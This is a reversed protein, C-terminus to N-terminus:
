GPNTSSKTKLGWLLSAPFLVMTPVISQLAGMVKRSVAYCQAEYFGIIGVCYIAFSAGFLLLYIFPLKRVAAKSANLALLLGMNLALFWVMFFVTVVWKISSLERQNFGFLWTVTGHNHYYDFPANVRVLELSRHKQEPTSEYFGPITRGQDIIYNISIKLKEQYFGSVLAILLLGLIFLARKM